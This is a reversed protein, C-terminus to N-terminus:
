KGSTLLSGKELHCYCEAIFWQWSCSLIPLTLSSCNPSCNSGNPFGPNWSVDYVWLLLKSLCERLLYNTLWALGQQWLAKVNKCLFSPIWSFLGPLLIWICILAPIFIVWLLPSPPILRHAFCHLSLPSATRVTLSLRELSTVNSSKRMSRFTLFICAMCPRLVLTDWASPVAGPLPGITSGLKSHKLFLVRRVIGLSPCHCNPFTFVSAIGECRSRPARPNWLQPAAPALHHDPLSSQLLCSAWQGWRPVTLFFLEGKPIKCVPIECFLEKLFTTRLPPSPSHYGYNKKFCSFVQDLNNVFLRYKWGHNTCIHIVWVRIFIITWCHGEGM